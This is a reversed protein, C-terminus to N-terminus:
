TWKLHIINRMLLLYIKKRNYNTSSVIISFLQASTTSSKLSILDTVEPSIWQTTKDYWIVLCGLPNGMISCTASPAFWTHPWEQALRLFRCCQLHTSGTHTDKELLFFNHVLHAKKVGTGRPSLHQIQDYNQTIKVRVTRIFKQSKHKQTDGLIKIYSFIKRMHNYDILYTLLIEINKNGTHKM